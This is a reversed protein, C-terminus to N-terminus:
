SLFAFALTTLAWDRGTTCWDLVGEMGGRRAKEGEVGKGGLMGIVGDGERGSGGLVGGGEVGCECLLGQL